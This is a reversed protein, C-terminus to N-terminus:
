LYNFATNTVLLGIRSYWLLLDNGYHNRGGYLIRVVKKKGPEVPHDFASIRKFGGGLREYVHINVNKLWSVIAMEIGGGWGGGSISQAYQSASMATDWRVWDSLPTESIEFQPNKIIFSAITSRLSSASSNDRLGYSLSHFLCSGDGPQRVVRVSSSSYFDGPLSSVGGIKSKRKRADPHSDREKKFYPCSETAHKGIGHYICNAIPIYL